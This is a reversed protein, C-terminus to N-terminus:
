QKQGLQPSLGFSPTRTERPDCARGRQASGWYKRKSPTHSVSVPMATSRLRVMDGRCLRRWRRPRSPRGPSAPSSPESGESARPGSSLFSPSKSVSSSSLPSPLAPSDSHWLLPLTGTLTPHQSPAANDSRTMRLGSNTKDLPEPLASQERNKPPQIVFNFLAWVEARGGDERNLYVPPTSCMSHSILSSPGM